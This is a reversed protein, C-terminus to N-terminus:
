LARRAPAARHTPAASATYSCASAWPPFMRQLDYYRPASGHESDHVLVVIPVHGNGHPLVPRGALMVGAGQSRTNTIDFAIRKGAVGAVGLLNSRCVKVRRAFREDSLELM